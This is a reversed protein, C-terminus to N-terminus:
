TTQTQHSKNAAMSAKSNEVIQRSSERVIEEISPGFAASVGGTIAGFGACGIITGKSLALGGLLYWPNTAYFLSGGAGILGGVFGAKAIKIIDMNM